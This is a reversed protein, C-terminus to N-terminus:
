RRGQSSQGYPNLDPDTLGHRRLDAQHLAQPGRIDQDSRIFWALEQASADCFFCFAIAIVVSAMRHPPSDFIRYSPMM